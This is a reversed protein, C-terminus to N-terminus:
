SPTSGFAAAAGSGRPAIYAVINGQSNSIEIGSTGTPRIQDTRVYSNFYAQGTSRIDGDIDLKYSPSTEGIGVNGSGNVVLDSLPVYITEQPM